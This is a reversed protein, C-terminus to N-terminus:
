KWCSRRHDFARFEAGHNQGCEGYGHGINAGRSAFNYRYVRIQARQGNVAHLFSSDLIYDCTDRKVSSSHSSSINGLALTYIGHDLIACHSCHDTRKPPDSIRRVKVNGLRKSLSSAVIVSLAAIINTTFFVSGLKGEDLDFRSRFYFTVWSRPKYADLPKQVLITM